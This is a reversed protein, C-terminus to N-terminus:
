YLTALMLAIAIVMLVIGAVLTFPRKQMVKAGANSSWFPCRLGAVSL